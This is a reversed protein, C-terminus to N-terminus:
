EARLAETISEAIENLEKRRPKQSYTSPFVLGFGDGAHRPFVHLHLHFVEQGAAEGDALFFNVGEGKVGSKRLAGALRQAVRFIQAGEAEELDALHPAHRNPVVLMHGPNIPQIDMFASCYNDRHVMSVEPDGSLLKCILCDGTENM